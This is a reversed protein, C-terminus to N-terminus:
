RLPIGYNINLIGSNINKFYKYHTKIIQEKCEKKYIQTCLAINKIIM